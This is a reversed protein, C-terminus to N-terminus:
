LFYTSLINNCLLLLPVFFYISVLKMSVHKLSIQVNIQKNTNNINKLIEYNGEFFAYQSNTYTSLSATNWWNSYM